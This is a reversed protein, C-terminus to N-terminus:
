SPFLVDSVPSSCTGFAYALQVFLYKLIGCRENSKCSCKKKLENRLTEKLGISPPPMSIHTSFPSSNCWLGNPSSSQPTLLNEEHTSSWITIRITQEIHLSFGGGGWFTLCLNLTLLWHSPQDTLPRSPVLDSLCSSTPRVFFCTLLPDTPTPLFHQNM